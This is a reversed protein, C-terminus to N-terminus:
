KSHGLRYFFNLTHYNTVAWQLSPYRVRYYPFVVERLVNKRLTDSTLQFSPEFRTVGVTKSKMNSVSQSTVLELYRNAFFEINSATVITTTGAPVVGQSTKVWEERFSELSQADFQTANFPSLGTPDKEVKSVRPFVNVSGSVVGDTGSIFTRAPHTVLTLNEFADAGLPIIAM